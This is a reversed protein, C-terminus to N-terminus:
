LDLTWSDIYGTDISAADRVRLNWTGNATESALNVTYTQNINDASSGTRNHLNYVSGDPAILDVILDGIYTHVIQVAVTSGNSATGSCGSVTIPSSVTSNDNITYNAANTTAPCAGNTPPPENPGSGTYLLLNKSGPGPSSIRDHSAAATLATQVDAPTAEPNASLYLAAAGAVHPTAMSTGSITNAGGNLWSSTINEGPAFIDTCSGYNSFSARADTRTTANVTIATPVRAPSFGCADTNSNGSAIAYTVGSAISTAVAEDLAPDAGGGLSMNAVAPKVANDTVWEIGAVVQATTGQGSANLVRVAVLSAGKALGYTSGGITGAVHTGHGHKDNAVGGDPPNDDNVADFGSSARTGFQPHDLDMGTDIIYAHVNDATTSYSYNTDLPLDRQDVRDLGWSPPNPQDDTLSLVQNQQVFAVDPDAALQKAQQESMSAAFGNFVTDYRFDVKSGLSNATSKADSAAAAGDKYVVLYSGAVATASDAGLIRGEAASAPATAVVALGVAAATAFGASFLRRIVARDKGM